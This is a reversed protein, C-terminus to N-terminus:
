DLKYRKTLSHFSDCIEKANFKLETNEQLSFSCLNVLFDHPLYKESVNSDKLVFMVQLACSYLM